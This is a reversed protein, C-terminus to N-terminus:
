FSNGVSVNEFLLIPSVSACVKVSVKQYHLMYNMQLGPKLEQLSISYHFCELV